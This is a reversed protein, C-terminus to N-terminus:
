PKAPSSRVMTVRVTAGEQGVWVSQSVGTGPTFARMLTQGPGTSSTEIPQDGGAAAALQMRYHTVVANFEGSCTLSMSVTEGAVPDVVRVAEGAVTRSGAFFNLGLDRESLTASGVQNQSAAAAAPAPTALQTPALPSRSVPASMPLDPPPGNPTGLAAVSDSAPAAPPAPNDTEMSSVLWVLAPLGLGIVAIAMRHGPARYRKPRTPLFKQPDDLM